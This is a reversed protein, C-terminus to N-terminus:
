LTEHALTPLVVKEVVRNSLGSVFIRLDSTTRSLPNSGGRGKPCRIRLNSGGPVSESEVHRGTDDPAMGHWGTDNQRSCATLLLRHGLAM